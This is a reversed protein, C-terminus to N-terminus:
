REGPEADCGTKKDWYLVAWRVPHGGPMSLGDECSVLTQELYTYLLSREQETMDHVMWSLDSVAANLDAYLKRDNNYTFSVNAYIGTQRLLNLVVMYDVEPTHERGVANIIRSDHPGEGVLTSLFVKEKAFNHAKLVAARLDLVLLSRSAMVVDHPEIGLAHWDQEWGGELIRINTIGEKECREQLLERMRPSPDIATVRRVKRALPIALTGAACGVDLLSWDPQPNMLEIFQEIYDSKQVARTFEPARKNWFATSDFQQRRKNKHSDEWVTNWDILSISM